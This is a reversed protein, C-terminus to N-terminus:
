KKKSRAKKRKSVVGRGLIVEAPSKPKVEADSVAVVKVGHVTTSEDLQLAQMEPAPMELSIDLNKSADDGFRGKVYQDLEERNAFTKTIRIDM